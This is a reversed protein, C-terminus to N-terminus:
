VIFFMLYLDVVLMFSNQMILHINCQQQKHRM